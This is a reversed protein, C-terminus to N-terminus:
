ERRLLLEKGMSARRVACAPKKVTPGFGVDKGPRNGGSPSKAGIEREFHGKEVLLTIETV